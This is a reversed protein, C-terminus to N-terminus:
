ASSSPCGRTRKTHRHMRQWRFKGGPDAAVAPGVSRLVHSRRPFTALRQLSDGPAPPTAPQVDVSGIDYINDCGDHQLRHEIGYLTTSCARDPNAAVRIRPQPLFQVDGYIDYGGDLSGERAAM